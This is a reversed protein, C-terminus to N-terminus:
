KGKGKPKQQYEPHNLEGRAVCLNCLDHGSPTVIWSWKRAVYQRGAHVDFAPTCAAAMCFDCIIKV